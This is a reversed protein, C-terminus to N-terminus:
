MNRPAFLYHVVGWEEGQNYGFCEAVAIYFVRWRNVRVRAEEMAKLEIKQRQESSISVNGKSSDDAQLKDMYHKILDVRLVETAATINKDLNALWAESTAAIFLAFL